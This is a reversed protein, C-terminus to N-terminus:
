KKLEEPIDPQHGMFWCGNGVNAVEIMLVLGAIMKGFDFAVKKINKAM